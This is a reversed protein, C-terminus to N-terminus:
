IAGPPLIDGETGGSAGQMASVGIAGVIGYKAMVDIIKDDFIVFNSEGKTKYQGDPTLQGPEYKIGKIGLKNLLESSKDDFRYRPIKDRESLLKDYEKAAKEGVPSTFNRYGYSNADVVKNLESLKENIKVVKDMSDKGLKNQLLSYFERGTLKESDKGKNKLSLVSLDRAGYHKELKALIKPQESLPKDYDLLDDTVTKINVEYTKGTNQRVEVKGRLEKLDKLEQTYSKIADVNKLEKMENLTDEINKIAKELDGNTASLNTSLPENKLIEPYHKSGRIFPKGNVNVEKSLADKYFKAIDKSDTFYLGYGFAQHGEGTGIKSLKFEDFDQGSGHFAFIGDAKDTPPVVKAIDGPKTSKVGLFGGKDLDILRVDATKDGSNINQAIRHHGDRIFFKGDKKVVLPMIDGATKNTGLVVNDQTAILDSINLKKVETPPQMYQIANEGNELRIITAKARDQKYGSTLAKLEDFRKKSGAMDNPDIKEIKVRGLGAIENVPASSSAVLTEESKSLEPFKKVSGFLKSTETAKSGSRLAKGLQSTMKMAAAPALLLPMFPSAALMVDGGAGVTQLGADLYRGQDINESFSPLTQGPNFPDPAYGLVDSVGAGPTFGSAIAGGAYLNAGTGQKDRTEMRSMLNRFGQSQPAAMADSPQFYRSNFPNDKNDSMLKQAMMDRAFKSQMEM